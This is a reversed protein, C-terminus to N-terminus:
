SLFNMFALSASELRNTEFFFVFQIDQLTQM